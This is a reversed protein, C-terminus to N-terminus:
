LSPKNLVDRKNIWEYLQTDAKHRENFKNKSLYRAKFDFFRSFHYLKM